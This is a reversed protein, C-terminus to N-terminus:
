KDEFFSRCADEFERLVARSDAVLGEMKTWDLHFTYGHRFFHRFMLYEALRLSLSESILATRKNTATSMQALLDLHWSGSNPLTGDIKSAIQRFINEIGTYFSHLYASLASVETNGPVSRSSANILDTTFELLRRLQALELEVKRQTEPWM